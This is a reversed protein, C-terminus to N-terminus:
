APKSARSPTLDPVCHLSQALSGPLRLGGQGTPAISTGIGLDQEEGDVLLKM